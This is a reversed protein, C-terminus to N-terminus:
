ELKCLRISTACSCPSTKLRSLHVILSFFIVNKPINNSASATCGSGSFTSAMLAM